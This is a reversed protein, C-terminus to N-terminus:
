PHYDLFSVVTIVIVAIASITILAGVTLYLVAMLVGFIPMGLLLLIALSFLGMGILGIGLLCLIVGAVIYGVSTDADQNQNAIEKEIPKPLPPAESQLLITSIPEPLAPPEPAAVPEDVPGARLTNDCVGCVIRGEFVYAQESRPMERECDSCIEIDFSGMFKGGM